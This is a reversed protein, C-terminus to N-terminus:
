ERKETKRNMPFLNFLAFGHIILNEGLSVTKEITFFSNINSIQNRHVNYTIPVHSDRIHHIGTQIKAAVKLISQRQM